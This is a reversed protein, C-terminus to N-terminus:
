PLNIVEDDQWRVYNWWLVDCRALHAFGSPDRYLVRFSPGWGSGWTFPRWRVKIPTIRRTQLDRKVWGRAVLIWLTKLVVLILLPRLLHPSLIYRLPVESMVLFVVRSTVASSGFTQDSM